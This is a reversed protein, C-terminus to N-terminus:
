AAKSADAFAANGIWKAVQSREPAARDRLLRNGESSDAFAAVNDTLRDADQAALEMATRVGAGVILQAATGSLGPVDCQLRAQDQWDTITDPKIYPVDVSDATALPDADLLDQVTVIGVKNLRLATKPGVSPGDEVEDSRSLRYDPTSVSTQAATDAAEMEAARERLMTAPDFTEDSADSTDTPSESAKGPEPKKSAREMKSIAFQPKERVEANEVIGEAKDKEQKTDGPKKKKGKSVSVEAIDPQSTESAVTARKKTETQLPKTTKESESPEARNGLATAYDFAGGIHPPRFAPRPPASKEGVERRFTDRVIRDDEPLTKEVTGTAQLEDYMLTVLARDEADEMKRVVWKVPIKLTALVTEATLSVEPPQVGAEAIARDLIRAQGVQAYAILQAVIRRARENLGTVPDVVGRDLDYNAILKEYFTNSIEAADCVLDALWDDRDEILVDPVPFESKALRNLDDYSKSISWEAARHINNEAESQATHFPMIPDTYYHSMVGAAYAAQKWDRNQLAEVTHAYWAMTKEAAGGWYADRVHLVHNTFDKFEKDPAKSGEIYSTAENLIVRRWMEADPSRLHALADLALKHHTGNAHTARLIRFLLSQQAM